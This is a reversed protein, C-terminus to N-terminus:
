SNRLRFDRLVLATAVAANLSEPYVPHISHREVSVPLSVLPRLTQDLGASENGILILGEQPKRVETLAQGDLLTGIVPFDHPAQGIIVALDVTEFPVRLVSGMASQIVKPSLPHACGHSLYMSEIGFWEAIRFITGVNGPDQIRDLGLYFKRPQPHEIKVPHNRLLAIVQNPTKLTSIKKLNVEDVATITINAADLLDNHQKIWDPLAFIEELVFNGCLAGSLCEEM